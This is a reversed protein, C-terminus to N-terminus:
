LVACVCPADNLCGDPASNDDNLMRNYEEAVRAKCCKSDSSCLHETLTVDIVYMQCQQYLPISADHLKQLGLPETAAHPRVLM